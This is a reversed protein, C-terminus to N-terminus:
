SAGKVTPMFRIPDEVAVGLDEGSTPASTAVIVNLHNPAHSLDFGLVSGLREERWMVEDGVVLVGGDQFEAFGLYAVDAVIPDGDARDDATVVIEHVEGRRVCRTSFPSLEMRRSVRRHRYVLVVSAALERKALGSFRDRDDHTANM